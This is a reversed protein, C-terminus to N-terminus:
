TAGADRRSKAREDLTAPLIGASRFAKRKSNNRHRSIKAAQLVADSRHASPGPERPNGGRYRHRAGEIGSSRLGHWHKEESVARSFWQHRARGEPRRHFDSM